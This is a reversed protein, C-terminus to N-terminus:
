PKSSEETGKLTEQLGPVGGAGTPVTISAGEFADKIPEYRGGLQEALFAETVAMFSIRNEPRQFGHGEDPYLAYTVPINKERMADVIQDAESKKVRPDNAGQAILLPDEIKEVHTLPSRSRLFERGEETTHDGM